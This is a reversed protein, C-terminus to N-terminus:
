LRRGEPPTRLSSRKASESESESEARVRGARTEARSSLRCLKDIELALEAFRRSRLKTAFGLALNSGGGYGHSREMRRRRTTTSLVELDRVLAATPVEVTAPIIESGGERRGHDHNRFEVCAKRGTQFGEVSRLVM